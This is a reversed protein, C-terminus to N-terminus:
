ALYNTLLVFKFIGSIAAARANVLDTELVWTSKWKVKFERGKETQRAALLKEIPWEIEASTKAKAKTSYTKHRKPNARRKNSPYPHIDNSPIPPPKINQPQQTDVLPLARHLKYRKADPSNPDIDGESYREETFRSPHPTPPREGKPGEAGASPPELNQNSRKRSPM